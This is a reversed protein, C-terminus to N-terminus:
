FLFGVCMCIYDGIWFFGSCLSGIIANFHIHLWPMRYMFIYLLFITYTHTYWFLFFFRSIPLWHHRHLPDQPLASTVHIYIVFFDYTQIYILVLCFGPYLSGIIANFLIKLWPVRKFLRLVRFVRLMRLVALATNKKKPHIKETMFMCVWVFIIRIVIVVRTDNM